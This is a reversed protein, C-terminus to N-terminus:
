EPIEQGKSKSMTEKVVHLLSEVEFPKELVPNPLKTLFEQTQPLFIGGSMFVIRPALHPHREKILQYLEIGTHGPMMLDCLIVRFEPEGPLMALAEEGNSATSVQYSRLFRQLAQRIAPEDDIILVRSNKQTPSASPLARTKKPSLLHEHTSPLSIKFSSGEGLVSEASITGGLSTIIGHCLSLGLGTGEGVPKTTFFPDFIRPVIEAPIGKGNDKIEIWILGDRHWTKVWVQNTEKKKEDFAQTANMLLNVFVQGLRAENALAPPLSSYERVLNAKRRIEHATLNLSSELVAEVNTAVSPNDAARSFVKIDRVIRQVRLAGEQAEELCAKLSPNDECEQVAFSLNTLVYALPNNIEHAVGAALTGVSALQDTLRLRAQMKAEQTVDRLTVLSAPAGEFLIPKTPLRELVVEAGNRKAYVTLNETLKEELSDLAPLYKGTLEEASIVALKKAISPNAYLVKGEHHVLVGEQLSELIMTKEQYAAMSSLQRSSRRAFALLLLNSVSLVLTGAVLWYLSWWQQSILTSYRLSEFIWFSSLAGLQQQAVGQAASSLQPSWAQAEELVERLQTPLAPDEQMTASISRFASLEDSLAEVSRSSLAGHVRQVSQLWDVRVGLATNAHDLSSLLLFCWTGFYVLVFLALAFLIPAWRRWAPGVVLPTQAM